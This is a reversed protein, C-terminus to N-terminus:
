KKSRGKGEDAGLQRIIIKCQGANERQIRDFDTSDVILPSVGIALNKGDPSFAMAEVSHPLKPYAKIRRKAVGDWLAIGGDGGGSAFTGHIPHFALQNVPYVLEVGDDDVNRHCKFAYKRSQSEASPDFWEVGVRGEISSSAFGNDNPMCSVTRLQFKMSSERVQWPQSDEVPLVRPETPTGKPQSACLDLLAQLQYIHIGRDKVAVVVKTPSLSLSFVDDPLQIALVTSPTRDQQDM